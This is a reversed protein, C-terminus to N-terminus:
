WGSVAMVKYSGAVSMCVIMSVYMYVYMCVYMSDYHYSIFVNIYRRWLYMSVFM